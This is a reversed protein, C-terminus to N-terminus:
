YEVTINSAITNYYAHSLPQVEDLSECYEEVTNYCNESVGSVDLDENECSHCVHEVDSGGGCEFYDIVAEQCEVKADSTFITKRATRRM